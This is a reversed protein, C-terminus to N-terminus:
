LETFELTFGNIFIRGAQITYYEIETDPIICAVGDERENTIPNLFSLNVSFNSLLNLLETAVAGDLPIIGVTIKRKANIFDVVTDGAANTQANYNATKSITLQNVYRSFDKDDIMFFAM